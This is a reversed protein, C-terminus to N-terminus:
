TKNKQKQNEPKIQVAQTPIKTLSKEAIKGRWKTGSHTHTSCM